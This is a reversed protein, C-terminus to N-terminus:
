IKPFEIAIEFEPKFMKKINEKSYKCQNRQKEIEEVFDQSLVNQILNDLHFTSGYCIFNNIIM